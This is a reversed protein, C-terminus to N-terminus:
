RKNQLKWPKYYSTAEKGNHKKIDGPHLMYYKTGTLNPLHSTEWEHKKELIEDFSYHLWGHWESPIKSAENIEKYIVWRKKDQIFDKNEYYINGYKDEGKKKGFLSSYVSMVISM